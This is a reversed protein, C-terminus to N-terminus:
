VIDMEEYVIRHRKKRLGNLAMVMRDSIDKGISAHFFKVVAAHGEASSPRYGREFMLARGAQLMGNYSIALSWDLKGNEILTKATGV